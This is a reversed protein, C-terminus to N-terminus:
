SQHPNAASQNRLLALLEMINANPPVPVEARPASPLQGSVDQQPQYGNRFSGQLLSQLALSAAISPPYQNYTENSLSQQGSAGQMHTKAAISSVNAPPYQMSASEPMGPRHSFATQYRSDFHSPGAAAAPASGRAVNGSTAQQLLGRLNPDQLLQELMSQQSSGGGVTSPVQTIGQMTQL